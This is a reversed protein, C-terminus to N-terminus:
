EEVLQGGRQLMGQDSSKTCILSNIGQNWKIGTAFSEEPEIHTVVGQSKILLIHTHPNKVANSRHLSNYM